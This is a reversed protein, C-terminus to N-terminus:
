NKKHSRPDDESDKSQIKELQKDIEVEVLQEETTKGKEKKQFM